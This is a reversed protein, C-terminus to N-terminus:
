RMPITFTAVESFLGSGSPRKHLRLTWDGPPTPKIDYYISVSVKTATMPGTIPVGPGTLSHTGSTSSLAISTSGAGGSGYLIHEAKVYEDIEDLVTKNTHTHSEGELTTTTGELDSISTSQDNSTQRFTNIADVIDVLVKKADELTRVGSINSMVKRLSM